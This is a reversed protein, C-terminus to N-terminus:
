NIAVKNLREVSPAYGLNAAKTYWEKARKLQGAVEYLVGLNHYARYTGVGEVTAYTQTEGIDVCQLFAMETNDLLGVDMSLLGLVFFLDPFDPYKEIYEVLCELAERSQNMQKMAYGYMVLMPPYYLSKEEHQAMCRHFYPISEAYEGTSYLLKAMQYLLYGDDGRARLEKDYLQRYFDKKNKKEYREKQYGVHRIVIPTPRGSDPQGDRHISEHVAGHFRFASQNPFLRVVRHIAVEGDLDNRCLVQLPVHPYNRLVAEIEEKTSLLREDADLVLIHTGTAERLSINRAASFDNEWAARVIKAGFEELIGITGDESGTDIAIIESVVGQVSELCERLVEEENKVIMCLSIRM